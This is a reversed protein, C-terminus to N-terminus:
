KRQYILLVKHEKNKIIYLNSSRSCGSHVKGMHFHRYPLFINNSLTNHLKDIYHHGYLLQELHTHM